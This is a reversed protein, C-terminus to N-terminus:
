LEVQREPPLALLEDPFVKPFDPVVPIYTMEKKEKKLDIMYALSTTCGKVLCKRAKTITTIGFKLRCKDGYVM